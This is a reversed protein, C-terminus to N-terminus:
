SLLYYFVRDGFYFFTDGIASSRYLYLEIKECEFM